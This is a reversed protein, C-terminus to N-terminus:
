GRQCPRIAITTHLIIKKQNLEDLDKKKLESMYWLVYDIDWDQAESFMTTRFFFKFEFNNHVENAITVLHDIEESNIYDVQPDPDKHAYIQNRADVIKKILEKNEELVEKTNRTIEFIDNRSKIVETTKSQNEVILQNLNPGYNAGELISCLKKFSRKENKSSSFLKALQIVSIFKLQYWHHRFFGYKKLESEFQYKDDKLRKMNKISINLDLILHYQDKLFEEIKNLEIM